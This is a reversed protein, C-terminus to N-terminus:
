LILCTPHLPSKGVLWMFTQLLGLIKYLHRTVMTSRGHGHKYFCLISSLDFANHTNPPPQLHKNKCLRKYSLVDVTSYTNQASHYIASCQLAYMATCKNLQFMSKKVFLISIYITLINNSLTLM